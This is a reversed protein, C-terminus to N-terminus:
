YVFLLNVLKCLSELTHPAIDPLPLDAKGGVVAALMQEMWVLQWSCQVM